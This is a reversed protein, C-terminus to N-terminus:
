ATAIAARIEDQIQPTTREIEQAANIEMNIAALEVLSTEIQRRQTDIMWQLVSSLHWITQTGTHLPDPFTPYTIMMKRVAQRSVGLVGAIDTAGVFDPSAEILKVGPIAGKVDKLASLVATKANNETRSFDLAIRGTKGIGVLADDCGHEFLADIYQDASEESNPLAFKLTFKYENM